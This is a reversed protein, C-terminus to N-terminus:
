FPEKMALVFGMVADTLMCIDFLFAMFFLVFFFHPRDYAVDAIAGGVVAQSMLSESLNFPLSRQRRKMSISKTASVQM